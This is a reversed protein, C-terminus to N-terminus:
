RASWLPREIFQLGVKLFDHAHQKLIAVGLELGFEDPDL